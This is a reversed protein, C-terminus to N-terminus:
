KGSDSSSTACVRLFKDSNDLDDIFNQMEKETLQKRREAM